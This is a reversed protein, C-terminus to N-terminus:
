NGPQGGTSPRQQQMQQMMIQQVAQIIETLHEKPLAVHLTGKGKDVSGALVLNSKTQFSPQPMPIPMMAPL